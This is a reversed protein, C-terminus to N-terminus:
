DSWNLACRPREQAHWESSKRSWFDDSIQGELYDEYARDLKAELVTLQQAIRSRSEGRNAELSSQREIIGAALWNALDPPVQIEQLAGGLLEALRVATTPTAAQAVSPWHRQEAKQLMGKKVEESLNDIYNKAM